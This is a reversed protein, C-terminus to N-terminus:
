IQRLGYCNLHMLPTSIRFWADASSTFWSRMNTGTWCGKAPYSVIKIDPPSFDTSDPNWSMRQDCNRTDNPWWSEMIKPLFCCGNAFSLDDPASNSLYLNNLNTTSPLVQIMFEDESSFWRCRRSIQIFWASLYSDDELVTYLSQSGKINRVPTLYNTWIAAIQVYDGWGVRRETELVKEM